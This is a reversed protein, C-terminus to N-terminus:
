ISKDFPSAYGDTVHEGYWPEPEALRRTATEMLSSLDQTTIEM